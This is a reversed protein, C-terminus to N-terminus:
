MRKPTERIYEPLEQMRGLKTAFFTSFLILFEIARKSLRIDHICSPSLICDLMFSNHFNFNFINRAEMQSCCVVIADELDKLSSSQFNQPNQSSEVNAKIISIIANTSLLMVKFRSKFNEFYNPLCSAIWALMCDILSLDEENRKCAAILALIPRNGELACYLLVRGILNIMGECPLNNNVQIQDRLHKFLLKLFIPAKPIQCLLFM